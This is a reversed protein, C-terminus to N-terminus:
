MLSKRKEVGVREKKCGYNYKHFTSV